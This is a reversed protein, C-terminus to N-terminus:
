TEILQSSVTTHNSTRNVQFDKHARLFGGGFQYRDKAPRSTEPEHINHIAEQGAIYDSAALGVPLCQTQFEIYNSM